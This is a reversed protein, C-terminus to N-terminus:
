IKNERRTITKNNKGNNDRWIHKSKDGFYIRYSMERHFATIIWKIYRLYYKIKM